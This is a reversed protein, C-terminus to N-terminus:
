WGLISVKALKNYLPNQLNPIIIQRATIIRATIIRASVIGSHVEM